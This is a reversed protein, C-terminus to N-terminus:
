DGHYFDYLSQALAKLRTYDVGKKPTLIIPEQWWLVKVGNQMGGDTFTLLRESEYFRVDATGKNVRHVVGYGYRDHWVKDGLAVAENDIKM